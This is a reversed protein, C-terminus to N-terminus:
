QSSAVSKRPEILLVRIAKFQRSSTIQCNVSELGRMIEDQRLPLPSGGNILWLRTDRAVELVKAAPDYSGLLGSERGWYVEFVQPHQVWLRDGESRHSQVFEFASRYDIKPAVVFLNKATAIGSPLLFCVLLIPQIWRVKPGLLVVTAGIGGAALLWLCPVVFFVTRDAVPYRGALGGAFMLVIPALLLAALPPSRRWYVAVGVTGFVWLPIGMGDIGYNGIGLLSKGMWLLTASLGDPPFGQWGNPGWHERLGPYYLSGADYHWLLFASLGLLANFGLWAAFAARSRQVVTMSLLAISAGGLVFASSFSIWPAVIALFLLGLLYGGYRVRDSTATLFGCAFILIVLTVAFDGAYSRVENAHMQAHGSIACLGVAWIWGPLGVVRRALPIMLFLSALGALLAPLRM